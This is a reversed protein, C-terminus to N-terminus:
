FKDNSNQQSSIHITFNGDCRDVKKNMNYVYLYLIGQDFGKHTHSNAIHVVCVHPAQLFKEITEGLPIKNKLLRKTSYLVPTLQLRM